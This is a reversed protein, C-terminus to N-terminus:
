PDLHTVPCNKQELQLLEKKLELGGGFGTMTGDHGIVRHCPIIIPIPNKNNAGGVARAAGPNGIRRAIEGYGATQGYPIKQLEEWVQKQFPTGELHMQVRFSQLKGDFYAALQDTVESFVGCNKQWNAPITINRASRPFHLKELFGDQGILLLIGIPTKCPCYHKM